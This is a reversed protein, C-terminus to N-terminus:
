GCQRRRCFVQSGSVVCEQWGSRLIAERSRTLLYTGRVVETAVSVLMIAIRLLAASM